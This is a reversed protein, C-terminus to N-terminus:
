YRTRYINTNATYYTSYNQAGNAHFIASLIGAILGPILYSAFIGNSDKIGNKNMKLKLKSILLSSIFSTITGIGMALGPNM